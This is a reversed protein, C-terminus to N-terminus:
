IKERIKLIGELNKALERSITPECINEYLENVQIKNVVEPCQFCLEQLDPHEGCLPCPELPGQGKFNGGFQAMRTRFRFATKALKVDLNTLYDQKELKEYKLSKLKSQNKTEKKGM